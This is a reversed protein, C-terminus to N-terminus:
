SWFGADSRESRGPRIVTSRRASDGHFPQGFPTSYAPSAMQQFMAECPDPLGLWVLPQRCWQAWQNFGNLPRLSLSPSGARLYARIITLADALYKGRQERLRQLPDAQYHRAAPQESQPDLHITLVRRGMDLVAEVNNGAFLFLSRASPRAIKSVGLIRGEIRESTLASLL